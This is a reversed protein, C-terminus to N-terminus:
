KNLKKFFLNDKHDTVKESLADFDDFRFLGTKHDRVSSAGLISFGLRGLSLNKYLVNTRIFINQIDGFKFFYTKKNFIGTSYTLIEDDAAFTYIRYQCFAALMSVAFVILAIQLYNTYINKLFLAALGLVVSRVVPSVLALPHCRRLKETCRFDPACLSLIEKARNKNVMLSLHTTENKENGLGVVALDISVLSFFRALIPQNIIVANIKETEFVYNRKNILGCSIYIMNDSKEVVYNCLNLTGPILSGVYGIVAFLLWYWMNGDSNGDSTEFRPLVFVMFVAFLTQLIPFSLLKTVFAQKNSFAAVTTRDSKDTDDAESGVVSQKIQMLTEKLQVAEGYKLVFKFDTASATRSSNLDIKVKATGILREFFNREVNVVAINKIPLRSASNFLTKKEYVFDTDEIHFTTKKWYRVSIFLYWLCFLLLAILAYIIKDNYFQANYILARYFSLRFIDPGHDKLFSFGFVFLFAFVGALREIIISPHNRRPSDFM